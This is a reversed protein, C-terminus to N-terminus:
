RVVGESAGDGIKDNMRRLINRVSAGNERDEDASGTTGQALGDDTKENVSTAVEESKPDGVAAGPGQIEGARSEADMKVVRSPDDQPLRAPLTDLRQGLEGIPTKLHDRGTGDIAMLLQHLLSRLQENDDKVRRLAAETERLKSDASKQGKDVAEIMGSLRSSYKKQREDILGFRREADSVRQRLEDINIM